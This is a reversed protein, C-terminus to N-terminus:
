PQLVAEVADVAVQQMTPTVHSYLDLTIGIQSHGLMEAVVKPHVGQRLMLTAATHRLDHFRIHPLGAHKLAPQFSRLRVNSPDLPRGLENTFVFDLCAWSAGARRRGGAQRVRHQSVAVATPTLLVVRARGTKTEAVILGQDRRALTGRVSVRRSLLDVDSWRLALLEGLRMGTTVALMYLAQLRDSDVAYLLRRVEDPDLTRMERKPIRPPNVLSAVNQAVFNWRHAQGLARHLFAHLHAVTAPALGDDLKRSQPKPVDLADALAV